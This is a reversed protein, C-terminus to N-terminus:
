EDALDKDGHEDPLSKYWDVLAWIIGSAMMILWFLYLGEAIEM